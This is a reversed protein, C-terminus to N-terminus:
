SLFDACNGCRPKASLRWPQSGPAWKVRVRVGFGRGAGGRGAETRSAVDGRGQFRGSAQVALSALAHALPTERAVSQPPASPRAGLLPAALPPPNWSKWTQCGATRGLLGDQGRYHIWWGSASTVQGCRAGMGTLLRGSLGPASGCARGQPICEPPGSRGAGKLQGVEWAWDQVLAKLWCGCVRNTNM